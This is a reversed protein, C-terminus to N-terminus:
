DVEKEDILRKNVKRIEEETLERAELLAYDKLGSWKYCLEFVYKTLDVEKYKDLLGNKYMSLADKFVLSYTIVQKGKLAKYFTDFVEQSIMYDSDKASYKAVEAIANSDSTNMKRVDVQTITDDKMFYRWLELWKAKNIYDRSKFYSRNVAIMVHFHPHYDNREENYTIELKRIHGKNIKVVDKNRMLNKFSNNYKKIEDNLDEAKVNPATLTLFIFEYKFVDQIYKLLVSIKLADKKAQRWSCMPCFRNGCFNSKNLKKVKIKKDAFFSLFTGCNWINNLNDESLYKTIFTILDENKMKKSNYKDIIDIKEKRIRKNKITFGQTKPEKSNYDNM